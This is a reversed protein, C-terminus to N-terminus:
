TFAHRLGKRSHQSPPVGYFRSFQRSFVYPDSYGLIAATEKVSQAPLLEVAREMRKGLLYDRPSKGNAERFARRFNRPSMGMELATEEVAGREKMRRLLGHTARQLFRTGAASSGKLDRIRQCIEIFDLLLHAPEHVPILLKKYLSLFSELFERNLGITAVENGFEWLGLKRLYRGTIGDVHLYVERTGPRHEIVELKPHPLGGSIIIQGAKVVRRSKGKAPAFAVEGAILFAFGYPPGVQDASHDSDLADNKARDRREEATRAFARKRTPHTQIFGMMERTDSRASIKRVVPHYGTQMEEPIEAWLGEELIEREM